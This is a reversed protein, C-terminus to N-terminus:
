KVNVNIVSLVIIVAIILVCIAIVALWNVAGLDRPTTENTTVPPDANGKAVVGIAGLVVIVAVWTDEKTWKGDAVTSQLVQAGITGIAAVWAIIGKWYAPLKSLNM